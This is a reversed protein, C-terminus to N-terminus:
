RAGELLRDLKEEIRTFRERFDDFRSVDVKTAEVWGLTAGCALVVSVILAAMRLAGNSEGARAM